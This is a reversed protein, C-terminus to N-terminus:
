GKEFVDETKYREGDRDLNGVEAGAWGGDLEHIVASHLEPVNHREPIEHCTDSPLEELNECNQSVRRWRRWLVVTAYIIAALIVISGIAIGVYRGINPSKQPAAPSADTSSPPHIPILSAPVSPDPFLAQSISFNSRDYDTILYAEQLFTRGLTYQSENQARRLPFYRSTTNGALPYTVTQDFSAYPLTINITANSNSAGASLHFTISANRALLTDRLTDNVLYLNHDENWVLGFAAEFRQCAVVPLWIQAVTSDIYTIISRPLLNESGSTISDIGILLDRATDPGLTVNLRNSSSRASDYGGFTLSGFTPKSKYYAGATYGYSSSSITGKNRLSGLVSPQPNFFDTFNVPHPTIGLNGIYFDKTAFGALVQRDLTPGGSGPWGFTVTDM